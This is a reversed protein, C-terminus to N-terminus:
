LVREQTSPILIGNLRVREIVEDRNQTMENARKELWDAMPALLPAARFHDALQRMTDIAAGVYLVPEAAFLTERIDCDDCGDYPAMVFDWDVDEDGNMERWFANRVRSMHATAAKQADVGYDWPEPEIKTVDSM